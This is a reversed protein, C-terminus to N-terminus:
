YYVRSSLHYTKPFRFHYKWKFTVFFRYYIQVSFKVVTSTNSKMNSLVFNEKLKKLLFIKSQTKILTKRKATVTKDYKQGESCKRGKKKRKKLQHWTLWFLKDLWGEKESSEHALASLFKRLKIIFYKKECFSLKCNQAFSKKPPLPLKKNTNKANKIQKNECWLQSIGTQKTRM